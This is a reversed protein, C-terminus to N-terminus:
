RGPRHKNSESGISLCFAVRFMIGCLCAKSLWTKSFRSVIGLWCHAWLGGGGCSRSVELVPSVHIIRVYKFWARGAAAIFAAAAAIFAMFSHEYHNASASWKLSQNFGMVFVPYHGVLVFRVSM